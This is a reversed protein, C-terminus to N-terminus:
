LPPFLLKVTSFGPLKWALWVIVNLALLPAFYCLISRTHSIFLVFCWIQPKETLFAYGSNFWFSIDLLGSSLPMRCFLQSSSELTDINYSVFFSESATGSQLLSFSHSLQCAGPKRKSQYCWQVILFDWYLRHHCLPM